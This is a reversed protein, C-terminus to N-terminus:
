RRRIVIIIGGIAVIFTLALVLVAIFILLGRLFRDVLGVSAM